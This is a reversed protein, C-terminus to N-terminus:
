RRLSIMPCLETELASAAAVELLPKAEEFKRADNLM